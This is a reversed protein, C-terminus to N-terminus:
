VGEKEALSDTLISVTATLQKIDARLHANEEILQDAIASKAFAFMIAARAHIAKEYNSHSPNKIIVRLTKTIWLVAERWAEPFAERSELLAKEDTLIEKIRCSMCAPNGCPPGNKKAKLESHVQDCMRECEQQFEETTMHLLASEQELMLEVSRDVYQKAVTVCFTAKGVHALHADVAGRLMERFPGEIFDSFVSM